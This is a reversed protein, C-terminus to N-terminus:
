SSGTIWYGGDDNWDEAVIWKALDVNVWEYAVGETTTLTGSVTTTEDAVAAPAGVIVGLGVVFATAAAIVSRLGTKVM